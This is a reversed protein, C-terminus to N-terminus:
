VKGRAVIATIQNVRWRASAIAHFYKTNRNGAELWKCRSRQKWKLEEQVVLRHFQDCLSKRRERDEANLSGYEEKGDISQIDDLLCIKNETMSGFFNGKEMRVNEEQPIEFESSISFWDM